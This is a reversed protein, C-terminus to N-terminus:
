PRISLLGAYGANLQQGGTLRLEAQATVTFDLVLKLQREMVLHQFARHLAAITVVRVASKLKFLGPQRRAEVGRTNLTVRVLLPRKNVLMSRHFGFPADGTMRRVTRRIWTQQSRTAHRLETQRTVADRMAHARLLRSSWLVVLVRLVGIACVAMDFNVTGSRTGDKETLSNVCRRALSRRFFSHSQAILVLCFIDIRIMPNAKTKITVAPKTAACCGDGDGEVLEDVEVSLGGWPSFAPSKM